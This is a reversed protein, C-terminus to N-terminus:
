KEDIQKKFEDLHVVVGAKYGSVANNFDYLEYALMITNVKKGFEMRQEDFYWEEIFQMKAIRERPYEKELNKVDEITIAEETRYDYAQLKGNYIANFVINTLADRDIGKLRESTWEDGDPNKVVVDYIVTDAIIVSNEADLTNAYFAGERVAPTALENNDVKVEPTCAGLVILGILILGIKKM